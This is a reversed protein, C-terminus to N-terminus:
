LGLLCAFFYSDVELIVKPLQASLPDNRRWKSFVVSKRTITSVNCLATKRGRGATHMHGVDRLSQLVCSSEYM